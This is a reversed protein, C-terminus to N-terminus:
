EIVEDALVLISDPITLGIAKATRLNLVMDFKTAQEVPLDAPKAGKFIRDVFYAARRYMSSLNEGYSMLGGAVAWGKEQFMSPLRKQIAFETIDNRLQMTVADQLVLLADPREEAIMAFAAAFDTTGQVEHSQLTVGLVRAAGQTQKWSFALAPNAPNWLTAVRSLGPVVRRLIELRKASVEATLQAGGTLNGGPHALSTVLGTNLPDIANPHVIPITKTASMVALAAPTTVVIIIDVNLRVMEAAFEKFREAQGRAYRREVILNRGEEYGYERLGEFLSDYFSEHGHAIFGMRWVKDAQQALVDLPWAAAGALLTIFKRRKM